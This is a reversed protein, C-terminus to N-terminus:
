AFLILGSLIIRFGLVAPAIVRGSKVPLTSYTEPYMSLFCALTVFCRVTGFVDRWIRLISDTIIGHFLALPTYAVLIYLLVLLTCFNLIYQLNLIYYLLLCLRTSFLLEAYLILVFTSAFSQSFHFLILTFFSESFVFYFYRRDPLYSSIWM